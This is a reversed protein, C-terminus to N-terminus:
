NGRGAGPGSSLHGKDHSDVWQFKKKKQFRVLEAFSVLDFQSSRAIGAAFSVWHNVPDTAGLSRLIWLKRFKESILHTWFDEYGKWKKIRFQTRDAAASVYLLAWQFTETKLERPNWLRMKRIEVHGKDSIFM